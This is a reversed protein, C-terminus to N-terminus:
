SRHGAVARTLVDAVREANHRWTYQAEATRRAETGLRARLSADGVATGVRAAVAHPDRPDYLLGVMGDRIVEGIQGLDAAIVTRGMAMYEFIKIPSFYFFDHPAYPALVVDMAGILGPVRDRPVFGTFVVRDGLGARECDARLRDAMAGGGVLLFAVHPHRPAVDLVLDRLTAIGHFSALSGV